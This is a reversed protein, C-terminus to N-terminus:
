IGSPLGYDIALVPGISPSMIGGDSAADESSAFLEFADSGGPQNSKSNTWDLLSILGVLASEQDGFLSAGGGGGAPLMDFASTSM